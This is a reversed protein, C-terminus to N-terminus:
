DDMCKKVKLIGLITDNMEYNMNGQIYTHM